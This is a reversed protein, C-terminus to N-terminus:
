RPLSPRSFEAVLAKPAQVAWAQILLGRLEARGIEPLRVLVAPFGDYHPETFFTRADAMLLVEKADLDPVRVALVRANPVRPKRTAVREMWVWAFGKYKSGNRVEFAFRGAVERTAPLALAIKRVDNQTAM